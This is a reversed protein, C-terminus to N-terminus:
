RWHQSQPSPVKQNIHPMQSESHCFQSLDLLKLLSLHGGSISRSLCSQMCCKLQRRSPHWVTLVEDNTKRRWKGGSCSWFTIWARSTALRISALWVVPQLPTQLPWWTPSRYRRFLTSKIWSFAEPWERGGGWFENDRWVWVALEGSWGLLLHATQVSSQSRNQCTETTTDQTSTNSSNSGPSWHIKRNESWTPLEFSFCSSWM